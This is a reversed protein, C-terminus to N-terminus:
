PLDVSGFHVFIHPKSRNHIKINNKAFSQSTRLNLFWGRPHQFCNSKSLKPIFRFHGLLDTIAPWYGIQTSLCFLIGYRILSFRLGQDSQAHSTRDPGVSNVLVIGGSALLQPYGSLVISVCHGFHGPEHWIHALTGNPKTVTLSNVPLPLNLTKSVIWCGCTDSM